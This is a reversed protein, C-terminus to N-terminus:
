FTGGNAVSSVVEKWASVSWFNFKGTNGLADTTGTDLWLDGTVLPTGTARTTPAVTAVQISSAISLNVENIAGVLDTKNTTTLNSLPGFLKDLEKIAQDKTVVAPVISFLNSPNDPTFDDSLIIKTWGKGATIVEGTSASTVLASATLDAGLSDVRLNGGTGIFMEAAYNSTYTNLADYLNFAIQGAELNVPVQNQTVSRLHLLNVLPYTTAM